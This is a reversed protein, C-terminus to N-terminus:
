QKGRSSFMLSQKAYFLKKDKKVSNLGVAFDSQLSLFFEKEKSLPARHRKSTFLYFNYKWESNDYMDASVSRSLMGLVTDLNIHWGGRNKRKESSAHTTRM